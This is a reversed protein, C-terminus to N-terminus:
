WFIFIILSYNISYIKRHIIILCETGGAQIKLFVKLPSHRMPADM